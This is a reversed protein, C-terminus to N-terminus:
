IVADGHSQKPNSSFRALQHTAYAIDPRTGKELYNLKRPQLSGISRCPGPEFFYRYVLAAIPQTAFLIVTQWLHLYRQVPAFNLVQQIFKNIAITSAIMPILSVLYDLVVPTLLLYM